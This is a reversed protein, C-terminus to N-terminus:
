ANLKSMMRGVSITTVLFNGKSSLHLGIPVIDYIKPSFAKYNGKDDMVAAYDVYFRSGDKKVIADNLELLYKKIKLPVIGEPLEQIAKIQLPTFTGRYTDSGESVAEFRNPTGYDPTDIAQKFLTARDKAIKKLESPQLLKPTVGDAETIIKKSIALTGGEPVQLQRLEVPIQGYGNIREEGDKTFYDGEVQYGLEELLQKARAPDYEYQPTDPNYWASTPPIMGPSGALAYGRETIQVLSERDIAYALAQRFQKSSLPEEQHNITLKANWSPPTTIVTLGAEEIESIAENPISGANVSGEELAAPIMEASIKVFKIEDV